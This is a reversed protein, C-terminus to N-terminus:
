LISFHIAYYKKFQQSYILHGTNVKEKKEGGGFGLAM